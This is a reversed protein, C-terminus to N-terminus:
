RVNEIGVQKSYRKQYVAEVSSRHIKFLEHRTTFYKVLLFIRLVFLVAFVQSKLPPTTCTSELADGSLGRTGKENSSNDM